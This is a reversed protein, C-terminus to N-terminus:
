DEEEAKREVHIEVQEVIPGQVSMVKVHLVDYDFSDGAEPFRNLQETVWGSVTTYESEFDKPEYGIVEFADEINLDGEVLYTDQSLEKYDQEVEDTEDYIEGVIEELIDETTLIGMTGGYEDLVVAMNTRNERFEQLIEKAPKTMHVFVPEVLMSEVDVTEEMLVAKMLQKTPLIGIIHDINERYVPIRSCSMADADALLEELPDDIDYAIMDVRPILIDRATIDSFGIASKILEGESESIVGEEQISDVVLELEEDTMDPIEEKPTWLPSLAKVLGGVVVVVPKFLKMFFRLLGSGSLTLSNAHDAALLKPFIEGFILLLLTTIGSAILEANTNDKFYHGTCLLTVVSTAAINVLDNGVLITSIAHVYDDIISQARVAKKDGDDVLSKIRAKNAQAFAIETSSFFASLAILFIVLLILLPVNM